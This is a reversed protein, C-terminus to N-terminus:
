AAGARDDLGAATTNLGTRTSGPVSADGAGPGAASPPPQEFTAPSCGCDPHPPWRRLIPVPDWGSLEASTGELATPRGDVVALAQHAAFGAALWGLSPEVGQPPRTAVQTALAPWRPDRDCRHLDLCRLCVGSGPRVLPGVLVDLERILVPLHTLDERVLPRISIPDVVGSDVVIVLDPRGGPAAVTRVMPHVSRLVSLATAERVSGVDSPRYLGGGVDEARVRRGDAVAITGVGAEALICAIRLGLEGLGRVHVLANSRDGPRPHGAVEARHWYVASPDRMPDPSRTAPPEVPEPLIHGSAALRALLAETQESSLDLERGRVRLEEISQAAPLRDVMQQEAPDLGDFLLACRPDLGIQSEGPKRWYVEFGPRIFM